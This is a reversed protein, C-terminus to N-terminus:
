IESLINAAENIPGSFKRSYLIFSSMNGLTIRGVLYLIAGFISIFSLSLNNIFNVFPGLLASHYDAEFYATVADENCIDFRSIITDETHYAKITKQGSVIEEVFGNLMGLKASRTRFYTHIRATNRRIFIAALPVTIVFILSLLPSISLMMVLSGVVTIITTCIQLLDNALSANVTDIDYSIRSIIDGTQRSDFFGVPLEMLKDFVDKRMQRATQQSLSIM